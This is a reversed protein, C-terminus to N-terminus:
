AAEPLLQLQKVKCHRFAARLEAWDSFDRSEGLTIVESM